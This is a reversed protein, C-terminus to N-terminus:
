LRYGRRQSLDIGPIKLNPVGGCHHKKFEERSLIIDADEKAERKVMEQLVKLSKELESTEGFVIGTKTASAIYGRCIRIEGNEISEKTM